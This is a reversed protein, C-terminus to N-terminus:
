FLDTMRLSADCLYGFDPIELLLEELSNKTFSQEMAAKSSKEKDLRLGFQAFTDAIFVDNSVFVAAPEASTVDHM